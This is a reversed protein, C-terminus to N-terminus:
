QEKVQVSFYIKRSLLPDLLWCRLMKRLSWLDHLQALVLRYMVFVYMPLTISPWVRLFIPTRCHYIWRLLTSPQRFKKHNFCLEDICFILVCALRNDLRQRVCYLLIQKVYFSPEYIYFEIVESSTM